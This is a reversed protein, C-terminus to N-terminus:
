LDGEGQLQRVAEVLADGSEEWHHISFHLLQLPFLPLEDFEFGLHIVYSKYMHLKFSQRKM